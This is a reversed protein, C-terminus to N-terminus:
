HSWNVAGKHVMCKICTGIELHCVVHDDDVGVARGTDVTYAHHGQGLSLRELLLGNPSHQPEWLALLDM